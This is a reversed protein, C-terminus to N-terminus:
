VLPPNEYKKLLLQINEQARSEYHTLFYGTSYLSPRDLLKQLFYNQSQIFQEDSMNYFEHRINRSDALFKDPPLSFSSLDVDVTLKELESQPPTKHQTAMILGCVEEIIQESFHRRTQDKFWVMSNRENNADGATYIADHFWIAIEVSPFYGVQSEVEDLKSLCQNIHEGCHYYRKSDGYYEALGAFVSECRQREFQISNKQWLDTFRPLDLETNRQQTKLDM